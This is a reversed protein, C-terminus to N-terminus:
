ETVWLYYKVINNDYLKQVKFAVLKNELDNSKVYNVELLYGMNQIVAIFDDVNLFTTQKMGKSVYLDLVYSNNKNIITNESTSQFIVLDEDIPTSVYNINIHLQYDKLLELAEEIPKGVLNPMLFSNHNSSITLCLEDGQNLISGDTISEKIIIGGMISENEEYELRLSMGNQECMSQIEEMVMEYSQGLFSRYTVPMIRGIYLSIIFDAKINTGAYPITKLVKEENSEVYTIQFKVKNKKLTDMAEQETQNVVDPITLIRHNFIRPSIFIFYIWLIIIGFIILWLRMILKMFDGIITDM